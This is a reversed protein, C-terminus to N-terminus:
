SASPKAPRHSAGAWPAVPPRAVCPQGPGSAGRWEADLPTTACILRSSSTTGKNM